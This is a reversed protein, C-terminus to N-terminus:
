AALKLLARQSPLTETTLGLYALRATPPTHTRLRITYTGIDALDLLPHSLYRNIIAPARGDQPKLQGLTIDLLALPVRRGRVHEPRGSSAAAFDWPRLQGSRDIGWTPLLHH